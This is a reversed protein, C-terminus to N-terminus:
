GVDPRSGSEPLKLGPTPTMTVGLAQSQYAGMLSGGGSNGLIVVQEVGPKSVCGACGRMSISSLTSWYSFARTQRSFAYELGLFGFGREAMYPGLYHESFDVNYHTAIFATKATGATPKFYLGQCPNFGAGNRM